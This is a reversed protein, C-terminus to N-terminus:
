NELEKFDEQDPTVEKKGTLLDQMLGAKLKQYKSLVSQETQLKTDISFLRKTIKIQENVPVKAIDIKNIIGGTIVPQAAAFAVLNLDLYNLFALWYDLNFEKEPSTVILANDTVWSFPKTICANGCYEGVRGIILREEEFLYESHFGNIGNGGYVPHIGPNINNQTLGEGSSVSIVEGLRKVEWEKPIM